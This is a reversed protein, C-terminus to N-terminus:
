VLTLCKLGQPLHTFCQHYFYGNVIELKEIKTCSSHGSQQCGTSSLKLPEAPPQWDQSLVTMLATTEESSLPRGHLNLGLNIVARPLVGGLGRMADIGSPKLALTVDLHQLQPAQISALHQVSFENCSSLKVCSPLILPGPHAVLSQLYLKLETLGTLQSLAQTIPGPPAHSIYLCQLNSLASLARGLEAQGAAPLPKSSQYGPLQCLSLQTLGTLQALAEVGCVYDDKLSLKNLQMLTHLHRINKKCPGEWLDLDTLSPVAKPL